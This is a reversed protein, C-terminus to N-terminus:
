PSFFATKWPSKIFLDFLFSKSDGHFFINKDESIKPKDSNKEIKKKLIRLAVTAGVGLLLHGNIFFRNLIFLHLSVFHAMKVM